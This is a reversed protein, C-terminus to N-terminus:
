NLLISYHLQRLLLTITTPTIFLYRCCCCISVDYYTISTSSIGIAIYKSLTIVVSTPASLDVGKINGKKDSIVIVAINEFSAMGNLIIFTIPIRNLTAM